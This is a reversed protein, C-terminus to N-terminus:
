WTPSSTSPSNSTRQAGARFLVHEVHPALLWFEPGLRALHTVFIRSLASGPRPNPPPFSCEAWVGTALRAARQQLEVYIAERVQAPAPLRQQLAVSAGQRTAAWCCYRWQAISLAPQFDRHVFIFDQAWATDFRHKALQLEFFHEAEAVALEQWYRYRLALGFDDRTVSELYECLVPMLGSRHYEPWAYRWQLQELPTHEADPQM